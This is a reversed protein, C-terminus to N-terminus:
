PKGCLTSSTARRCPTSQYSSEFPVLTPAVMAAKRPRAPTGHENQAALAFALVERRQAPRHRM